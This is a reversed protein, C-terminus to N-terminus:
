LPRWFLQNMPEALVSFLKAASSGTKAGLYIGRAGEEKAYRFVERLLKLAAGGKRYQPLVFISETGAVRMGKFHPLESLTFQCFGALRDGDLLLVTRLTGSSEMAEYWEFNLAPEPFGDYVIEKGYSDVLLNFDPHSKLDSFTARLVKTMM